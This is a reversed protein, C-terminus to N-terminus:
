IEYIDNKLLVYPWTRIKLNKEFFFSFYREALFDYLREKGYGKLEIKSFIKECKFIWNFTKEYLKIIHKKKAIFIQLPYFSYESNIYNKFDEMDDKELHEAAINLLNYGHFLDFHLNINIKGRDFLIGPNKIYNRFGKKILKSLKLNELFIKEPLIIDFDNDKPVERLINEKLNSATINTVNKKIWFRRYHNIGIWEDDNILDLRNKWIWYHTSLTGFNKNKKSINIETSDKFWSTPINKLDKTAAGSLVINLNIKDLYQHYKGTICYHNIHAM